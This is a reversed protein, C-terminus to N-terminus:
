VARGPDRFAQDAPEDADIQGRTVDSRGALVGLGIGYSEPTAHHLKLTGPPRLAQQYDM